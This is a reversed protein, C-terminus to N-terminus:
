FLFGLVWSQNLNLISNRNYQSLWTKRDDSRGKNFAMDITDECLDDWHYEIVKFERFYEKAEKPTSTGLGKFYKTTWGRGNNNNRQWEEYDTLTYFSIVNRAKKVKVIPTILSTIFGNIKMLSPWRCLFNVILGKIHSGDVDQDTM